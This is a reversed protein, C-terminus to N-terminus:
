DSDSGHDAQERSKSGLYGGHHRKSYEEYTFGIKDMM